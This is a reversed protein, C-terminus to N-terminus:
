KRLPVIKVRSLTEQQPYWIAVASINKAAELVISVLYDTLSYSSSKHSVNAFWKEGLTVM